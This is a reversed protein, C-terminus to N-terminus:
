YARLTSTNVQHLSLKCFYQAILSIGRRELATDAAQNLSQMM